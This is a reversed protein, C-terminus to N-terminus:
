ILDGAVVWSNAAYKIATAFSGAARLDSGPTALVSVGSEGSFTVLGNTRTFAMSTGIPFDLTSDLPLQVGASLSNNLIFLNNADSLAFQGASIGTTTQVTFDRPAYVTNLGTITNTLDAVDSITIEQWAANTGDSTLFYGNAGTQDPLTVFNNLENQVYETTAIQTTDTGLAATPATPTGTIAPSILPAYTSSADAIKLYGQNVVFQTTAIQTTSTDSAATPAEPTGTFTPSALPSKLLLETEVAEALAEVDGAVDVSDTQLPYPLLYTTTLGSAM